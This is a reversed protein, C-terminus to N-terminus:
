IKNKKIYRNVYSCLPQLNTYHNLRYVDDENEATSIPIIHDIDWGYNLEGNYQGKNDWNMWEEFKTELYLKFDEFSCGLIDLTKSKKKYGNKKFANHISARINSNIKYRLDSTYEKRKLYLDNKNVSRYEKQYEKNKQKINDNSLYLKKKLKLSEKNEEQYKKNYELMYEKQYISKCSICLHSYGYKCEKSKSFLEIEKEELCKKCTRLM